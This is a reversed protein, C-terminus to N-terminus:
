VQVSYTDKEYGLGGCEGKDEGTIDRFNDGSIVVGDVEAAIQLMVRDDYISESKKDKFRKCPTKVIKGDEFLQQMKQHDSSRFRNLRYEPV